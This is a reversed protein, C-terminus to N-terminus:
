FLKNINKQIRDSLRPKILITLEYSLVIKEVGKFLQLKTRTKLKM